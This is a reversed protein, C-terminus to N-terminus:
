MTCGTGAVGGRLAVRDGGTAGLRREKGRSLRLPDRPFLVRRISLRPTGPEFGPGAVA